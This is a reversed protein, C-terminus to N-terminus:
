VTNGKYLVIFCDLVTVENSFRHTVLEHRFHGAYTFDCGFVHFLLANFLRLMQVADPQVGARLREPILHASKACIARLYLVGGFGHFVPVRLVVLTLRVVCTRVRPPAKM